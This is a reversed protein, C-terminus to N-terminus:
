PQPTSGLFCAKGQSVSYTVRTAFVSQTGDGPMNAERPPRCRPPTSTTERPRHGVSRSSLQESLAGKESHRTPPRTDAGCHHSTVPCDWYRTRESGTSNVSHHLRFPRSLFIHRYSSRIAARNQGGSRNSHKGPLQNQEPDQETHM